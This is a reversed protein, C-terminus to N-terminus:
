FGVGSEEQGALFDPEFGVAEGHLLGFVCEPELAAGEVDFGVLAPGNVDSPFLVAVFISKVRHRFGTKSVEGVEMQEQLHKLRLLEHM